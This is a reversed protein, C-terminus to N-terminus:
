PVINPGDSASWAVVIDLYAKVAATSPGQYNIELKTTSVADTDVDAAFDVANAVAAPAVTARPRWQMKVPGNITAARLLAQTAATIPTTLATVIPPTPKVQDYLRQGDLVLAQLATVLNAQTILGTTGSGDFEMLFTLRNMSGSVLTATNAM